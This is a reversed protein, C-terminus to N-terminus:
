RTERAMGPSNRHISRFEARAATLAQHFAGRLLDEVTFPVEWVGPRLPRPPGGPVHVLALRDFLALAPLRVEVATGGYYSYCGYGANRDGGEGALSHGTTADLPLSAHYLQLYHATDTGSHWRVTFQGPYAALVRELAARGTGQADLFVDVNM